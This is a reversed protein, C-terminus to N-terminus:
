RHCTLVLLHLIHFSQWRRGFSHILNWSLLLFTSNTVEDACSRLLSWHQKRIFTLGEEVWTGIYYLLLINYSFFKIKYLFFAHIEFIM